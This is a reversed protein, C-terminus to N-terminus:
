GDILNNNDNDVLLLGNDDVLLATDHCCNVTFTLLVCDRAVGGITMSVKTVPTQLISIYFEYKGGDVSFLNTPYDEEVLDFGGTANVTLLRAFQNGYKDVIFSWYVTGTVLNTSTIAFDCTTITLENCVDCSDNDTDCFSM